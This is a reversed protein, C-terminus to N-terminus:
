YQLSFCSSIILSFLILAWYHLKTSQLSNRVFDTHPRLDSPRTRYQGQETCSGLSMADAGWCQGRQPRGCLNQCSPLEHIQSSSWECTWGYTFIFAQINFKKCFRLGRQSGVRGRGVPSVMIDTRKRNFCYGGGEFTRDGSNRHTHDSKGASQLACANLLM